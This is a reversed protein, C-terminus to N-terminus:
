LRLGDALLFLLIVSFVSPDVTFRLGLGEKASEFWSKLNELFAM